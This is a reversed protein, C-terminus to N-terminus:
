RSVVPRPARPADRDRAENVRLPRGSMDTGNTRAIATPADSAPMNVFGFGRPLGTDRDNIIVVSEVSGHKEFVCRLEAETASFPLNGVYITAM